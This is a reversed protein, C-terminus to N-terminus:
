VTGDEEGQFETVEADWQVHIREHELVRQALVKSARFSDRRHIVTVSSSTRALVLADEMATDGGGIVVVPRDRFIFGDCTACTSVGGGRYEFEGPIGLWKSEAGTAVILSHTHIITSNTTLLFPRTALNVSLVMEEHFRTGFATAQTQMFSVLTPGTQDLLGPYNEVEVGKGMLQGSFPPAIVVPKLGARAAYIAASLGAPGSGVVVVKETRGRPCYPTLRAFDDDEDAEEETARCPVDEEDPIGLERRRDLYAEELEEYSALHLNPL